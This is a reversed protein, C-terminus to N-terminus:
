RRRYRYVRVFEVGLTDQWAGALHDGRIDKIRYGVPTELRGIWRGDEFVLWSEADDDPTRYRRAWLRGAHDRVLQDFAPFSAPFPMTERMRRLASRQRESANELADEWYYDIHAETVVRAPLAVRILRRSGSRDRCRIEPEPGFTHCFGAGDVSPAIAAGATYPAGLTTQLNGVRQVARANHPIRVISDILAGDMDYVSVLATDVVLGTGRLQSMYRATVTLVTPRVAPGAAGAPAGSPQLLAVPFLIGDFWDLLFTRALTGDLRRVSLRQNGADWVLLSDGFVAVMGLGDFEAPGHGRGGASGRHTGDAAFIRLEESGQNAVVLGGDPLLAMDRVRYFEFPGGADISGLELVPEADLAWAPPPAESTVIEVGASDRVQWRADEGSGSADCGGILVAAAPLALARLRRGSVGRPGPGPAGVAAGRVDRGADGM